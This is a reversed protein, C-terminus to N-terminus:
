LQPVVHDSVGTVPRELTAVAPTGKSPSGGEVVVNSGVSSFLGELLDTRKRKAKKKHPYLVAWSSGSPPSPYKKFPDRPKTAPM